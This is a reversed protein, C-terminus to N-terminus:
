TPEMEPKTKALSQVALCTQTFAFVARGFNEDDVAVFLEGTEDATMGYFEAVRKLRSLYGKSLLNVDRCSARMVLDGFDRLEWGQEGHIAYCTCADGDDYTIPISISIRGDDFKSLSVSDAIQRRISALMDHAIM